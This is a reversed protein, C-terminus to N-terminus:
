PPCAAWVLPHEALLLPQEEEPRPPVPVPVPAPGVAWGEERQEPQLSVPVLVPVLVRGVLASAVEPELREPRARVWVLGVSVPAQRPIV